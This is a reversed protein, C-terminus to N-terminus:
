HFFCDNKTLERLMSVYTTEIYSNENVFVAIHVFNEM